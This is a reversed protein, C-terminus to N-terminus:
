KEFNELAKLFQENLHEQLKGDEILDLKLIDPHICTVLAALVYQIQAYEKQTIYRRASIKEEVLNLIEGYLISVIDPGQTREIFSIAVHLSRALRELLPRYDTWKIKGIDMLLTWRYEVRSLHHNVEDILFQDFSKEKHVSFLEDAYKEM